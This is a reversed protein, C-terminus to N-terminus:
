GHREEEQKFWNSEERVYLQGRGMGLGVGHESHCDPCLMAWSNYFRIRGDIFVKDFRVQCLDCTTPNSGLWKVRRNQM